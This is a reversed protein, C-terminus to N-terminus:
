QVDRRGPEDQAVRLGPSEDVGKPAEDHRAVVHHPGDDKEHEDNDVEHDDRLAGLADRLDGRPKREVRHRPLLHGDVRVEVRAEDVLPLRALASVLHRVLGVEVAGHVARRLEHSALGDRADEDRGDVDHPAQHDADGLLRHPNPLRRAGEGQERDPVPEHRM